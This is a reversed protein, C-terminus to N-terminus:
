MLRAQRLILRLTLENIERHRPVVTKRGDLHCFKEHKTGGDSRFGHSELLRVVDRRKTM